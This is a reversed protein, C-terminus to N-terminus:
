SYRSFVQSDSKLFLYGIVTSSFTKLDSIFFYGLDGQFRPVVKKTLECCINKKLTTKMEKKSNLM